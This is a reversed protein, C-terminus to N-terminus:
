QKLENMRDLLEDQEENTLKPNALRAKIAETENEVKPMYPDSQSELATTLQDVVDMEEQTRPKTDHVFMGNQDVSVEYKSIAKFQDKDALIYYDELHQTTLVVVNDDEHKVLSPYIFGIKLYSGWGKVTNEELGICKYFQLRM